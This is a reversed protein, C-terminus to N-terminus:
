SFTVEPADESMWIAVFNALSITVLNPILRMPGQAKEARLAQTERQAEALKQGLRNRELLNGRVAEHVCVCRGLQPSPDLM